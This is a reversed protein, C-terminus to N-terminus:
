IVNSSHRKLATSFTYEPPRAASFARVSFGTHVPFQIKNFICNQDRIQYPASVSTVLHRGNQIWKLKDQDSNGSPHILALKLHDFVQALLVPHQTLLEALPAPPEGVVLSASQGGPRFSQSPLNQGLQCRDHCRLRQQAPM